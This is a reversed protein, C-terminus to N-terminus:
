DICPRSSQDTVKVKATETDGVVIVKINVIFIYCNEAMTRRNVLYQQNRHLDFSPGAYLFDSQSTAAGKQLCM